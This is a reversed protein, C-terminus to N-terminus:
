IVFSANEPSWWFSTFLVIFKMSWFSKYTHSSFLSATWIILSNCRQQGWRLWCKWALRGLVMMTHFNFDGHSNTNGPYDLTSHPTLDTGLLQIYNCHEQKICTDGYGTCNVLLFHTHTDIQKRQNCAMSQAWCSHFWAAPRVHIANQSWVRNVFPYM